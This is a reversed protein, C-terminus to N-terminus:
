WSLCGNLLGCVYASSIRNFFNHSFLPNRSSYLTTSVSLSFHLFKKPPITKIVPFILSSINTILIYKKDRDERRKCAKFSLSKIYSHKYCSNGYQFKLLNTYTVVRRPGSISLIIIMTRYKYHITIM